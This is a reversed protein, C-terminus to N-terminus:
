STTSEKSSFRTISFPKLKSGDGTVVYDAILEGTAPSLIIGVHDHGSAISLGDWGPVPGLIPMGDPSGPRVGATASVFEADKLVPFVDQANSVMQAVGDATVVQDFINEDRTEAAIVCGDLQPVIAQVPGKPLFGPKRLLIRQGKVPRVPISQPLWRKALGTWPGAALITHNSHYTETLTRVGIVKDGDAELGTVEVGELCSTGLRSAANVLADVFAKGRISGEKPSLVGGQAAPAIEPERELLEDRDIWRVGIGLEGQWVLNEHLLDNLEDTLAVQIVGNQQFEPDVGAEKLEATLTPFMKLSRMGLEFYPKITHDVYWIPGVIGATAGSAGSAFRGKEFVTCEVGEKSLQYAISCGIVGGGIIAVDTTQTM